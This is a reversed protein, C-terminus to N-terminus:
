CPCRTVGAVGADEGAGSSSAARLPGAGSCVQGMVSASPWPAVDVGVPPSAADGAGPTNDAGTDSWAHSIWGSSSADCGTSAVMLGPLDAASSATEIAVAMVAAALPLPFPLSLRVPLPPLPATSPPPSQAATSLRGPTACSPTVGGIILRSATSGDDNGLAAGPFTLPSQRGGTAVTSSPSTVWPDGISPIAADDGALPETALNACAVLTISGGGYMALASSTTRRLSVALFSLM